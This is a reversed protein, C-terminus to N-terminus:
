HGNLHTPFNTIPLVKRHAAATKLKWVNTSNQPAAICDRLTLQTTKTILAQFPASHREVYPSSGQPVVYRELHRLGTTGLGESV